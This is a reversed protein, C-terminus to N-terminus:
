ALSQRRLFPAHFSPMSRLLKSYLTFPNIFDVRPRAQLAKNKLNYIINYYKKESSLYSTNTEM